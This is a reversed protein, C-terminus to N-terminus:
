EGRLVSIQTDLQPACTAGYGIRTGGGAL